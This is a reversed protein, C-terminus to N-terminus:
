VDCGKRAGRGILGLDALRGGGEGGDVALPLNPMEGIKAALRHHQFPGVGLARVRALVVGAAVHLAQLREGACLVAHHPQRHDGRRGALLAVDIAGAGILQRPRAVRHRGGHQEIRGSGHSPEVM